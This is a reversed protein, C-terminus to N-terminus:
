ATKYGSELFDTKHESVGPFPVMNKSNSINMNM